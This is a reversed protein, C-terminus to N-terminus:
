SQSHTVDHSLLGISEIITLKELNTSVDIIHSNDKKRLSPWLIENGMNSIYLVVDKRPIEEVFDSFKETFDPSYYDGCFLSIRREEVMKKLVNFGINDSDFWLSDFDQNNLRGSALYKSLSHYAEPNAMQFLEFYEKGSEASQFLQLRQAMYDLADRNFDFLLVREPNLRAMYTLSIDVGGVVGAYSFKTSDYLQSMKDVTKGFGSENPAHFIVMIM